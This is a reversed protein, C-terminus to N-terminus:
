VKKEECLDKYISHVRNFVHEFPLKRYPFGISRLYRNVAEKKMGSPDDMPFTELFLEGVENQLERNYDYKLDRHRLRKMAEGCLQTWMVRSNEKQLEKHYNKIKSEFWNWASHDNLEAMAKAQFLTKRLFWCEDDSLETQYEVRAMRKLSDYQLTDGYATYEADRGAVMACAIELYVEPDM